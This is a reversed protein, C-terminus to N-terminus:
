GEEWRGLRGIFDRVQIRSARGVTNIINAASSDDLTANWERFDKEPFEREFVSRVTREGDELSLVMGSNFLCQAIVASNRM